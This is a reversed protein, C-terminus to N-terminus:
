PDLRGVWHHGSLKEDLGDSSFIHVKSSKPAVWTFHNAAFLPGRCSGVVGDGRTIAMPAGELSTAMWTALVTGGRTAALMGNVGDTAFEGMPTWFSLDSSVRCIRRPSSVSDGTAITYVAGPAGSALATLSVGCQAPLFETSWVSGDFAGIAFSGMPAGVVYGRAYVHQANSAELEQFDYTKGISPLTARSWTDGHIRYLVGAGTESSSGAIWGDDPGVLTMDYVTREPFPTARWGSSGSNRLIIPPEAPATQAVLWLDTGSRGSIARIDFLPPLRDLTWETGNWHAVAAPSATSSVNRQAGLAVYFDDDSLGWAGYPRALFVTDLELHEFSLDPLLVPCVPPPPPPPMSHESFTAESPIQADGLDMDPPIGADSLPTTGGSCGALFALLLTVCGTKEV